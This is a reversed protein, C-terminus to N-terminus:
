GNILSLEHKVIDSEGLQELVFENFKEIHNIKSLEVTIDSDVTTKANTIIKREVIKNPYMANIEDIISIIETSSYDSTLSIVSNNKCHLLKQKIDDLTNTSFNLKYFNYAYPNEFYTFTGADTDIILMKHAYNSADESFNQGTINGLNKIKATIDCGNHLHGNIFCDCNAEIEEISYGTTSVFGGLQIGAIDNHSFIIRTKTKQSDVITSILPTRDSELIYPLYVLEFKGIDEITTENIIKASPLLSFIDTTNFSANHTGIEHNGVIYVREDIRWKIESLASIEEADLSSKDFYDGLYVIRSCGNQMATEEVWNITNILNELRKSYYEGRSRCISSYKSWHVDGCVAIRM